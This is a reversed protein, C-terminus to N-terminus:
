HSCPTGVRESVATRVGCSTEASAAGLLSGTVGHAKGTGKDVQNARLEPGGGREGEEGLVPSGTWLVRPSNPPPPSAPPPHSLCARGVLPWITNPYSCPLWGRILDSYLSM